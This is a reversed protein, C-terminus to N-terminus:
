TYIIHVALVKSLADHVYHLQFKPTNSPKGAGTVSSVGGKSIVVDPLQASVADKADATEGLKPTAKFIGSKKWGTMVMLTNICAKLTTFWLVRFAIHGQMCSM